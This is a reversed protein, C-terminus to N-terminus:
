SFFPFFQQSLRDTAVLPYFQISFYLLLSLLKYYNNISL